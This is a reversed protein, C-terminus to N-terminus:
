TCNAFSDPVMFATAQSREYRMRGLLEWDDLSPNYYYITDLNGRTFDSNGGVIIFSDKYPVSASFTIDVPLSQKLQGVLTNFKTQKM